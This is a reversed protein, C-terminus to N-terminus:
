HPITEPDPHFYHVTGQYYICISIKLFHHLKNLNWHRIWNSWGQVVVSGEHLITESDGYRNPIRGGRGRNTERWKREREERVEAPNRVFHDKRKKAEEEDEASEEDREDRQQLPIILLTPVLNRLSCM